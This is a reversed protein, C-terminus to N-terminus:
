GAYWRVATANGFAVLGYYSTQQGRFRIPSARICVPLWDQCSQISM